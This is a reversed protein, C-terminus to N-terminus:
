QTYIPILAGSEWNLSGSIILVKFIKLWDVDQRYIPIKCSTNSIQSAVVFLISYVMLIEHNKKIFSINNLNSQLLYVSLPVSHSVHVNNIYWYAGM